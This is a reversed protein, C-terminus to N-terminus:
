DYRMLGKAKLVHLFEKNKPDIAPHIVLSNILYIFPGPRNSWGKGFPRPEYNAISAKIIVTKDKIERIQLDVCPYIKDMDIFVHSVIEQVIEQRDIVILSDKKLWQFTMQNLDTRKTYLEALLHLEDLTKGVFNIFDSKTM